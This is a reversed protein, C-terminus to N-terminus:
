RKITGPRSSNHLITKLGELDKVWSGGGGTIQNEGATTQYNEYKLFNPLNSEKKSGVHM